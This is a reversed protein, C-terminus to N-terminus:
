FCSVVQMSLLGILPDTMALRGDDQPQEEILGPGPPPAQPKELPSCVWAGVAHPRELYRWPMM